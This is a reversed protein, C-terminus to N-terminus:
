YSLESVIITLLIM